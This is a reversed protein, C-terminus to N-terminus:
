KLEDNNRTCSYIINRFTVMRSYVEEYFDGEYPKVYFYQIFQTLIAQAKSANQESGKLQQESLAEVVSAQVQKKLDHWQLQFEEYKKLDKIGLWKDIRIKSKNAPCVKDQLCFYGLKDKEFGRALPFLRCLGPRFDHIGCSGNSDLFGCSGTEDIMRINPIILGDEVHLEVPGALLEEFTLGMNEWLQYIDYPDLIISNGMNHCCKFCGNCDHCDVRAMDKSTYIKM